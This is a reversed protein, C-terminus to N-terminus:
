KSVSWVEVFVPASAVGTGVSFSVAYLAGTHQSLSDGPPTQNHLLVGGSYVEGSDAALRIGDTAVSTPSWVRIGVGIRNFDAPLLQVPTGWAPDISQHKTIIRTLRPIEIAATKDIPETADKLPPPTDTEIFFSDIVQGDDDKLDETGFVPPIIPGPYSM